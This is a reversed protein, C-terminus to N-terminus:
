GPYHYTCGCRTCECVDCGERQGVVNVSRQDTHDCGMLYYCLQSLRSMLKDIM